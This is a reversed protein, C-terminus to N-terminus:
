TNLTGIVKRRIGATNPNTPMARTLKQMTIAMAEDIKRM